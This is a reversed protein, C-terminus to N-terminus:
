NQENEIFENRDKNPLTFSITTGQGEHSRAWIKGGHAEIIKRALYLGLGTGNTNPKHHRSQWFRNFLNALKEEPIGIGYDQVMFLIFEHGPIASIKIKSNKDSFKIANSLINTIVREIEFPDCVINRTADFEHFEIVISKEKILSDLLSISDQFLAEVKVTTPLMKYSHTEYKFITLLNQVLKLANANSDLMMKFIKKQDETVAGYNGEIFHKLNIEAAILPTKLDHTFSAMMDELQLAQAQLETADNVVVCFGVKASMESYVASASVNFIKTEQDKSVATVTAIPDDSINNEVVSRIVPLDIFRDYDQDKYKFREFDNYIFHGIRNADLLNLNLDFILIADTLNSFLDNLKALRKQSDCSNCLEIACHKVLNADRQSLGKSHIIQEILDSNQSM